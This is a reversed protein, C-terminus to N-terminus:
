GQQTLSSLLPSKKDLETRRTSIVEVAKYNAVAHSDCPAGTSSDLRSVYDMGLNQYIDAAESPIIKYRILPM